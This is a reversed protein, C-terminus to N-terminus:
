AIGGGANKFADALKTDYKNAAYNPGNYLRAFQKWDRRKLAEHTRPNSKIFRVFAELQQGESAYMANIFSQLTPYGLTGWHYGMIQFLGWSASELACSRDILDAAQEMRGPQESTKGYGGPKPNIIAPYRSALNDARTKGFKAKIREYMVHREFLIIPRGDPLFGDGKSEVSCVAVVSAVPVGLTRAANQINTENLKKSM